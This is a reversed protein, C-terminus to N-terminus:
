FPLGDDDTVVEASQVSPKSAIARTSTQAATIKEIRMETAKLKEALYVQLAYGREFAALSEELGIDRAELRNVLSELETMGDEFSLKAIDANKETM